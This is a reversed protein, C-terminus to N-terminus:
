CELGGFGLEVIPLPEDAFSVVFREESLPAVGMAFLQIVEEALAGDEKEVEAKMFYDDIGCSECKSPDVISGGIWGASLNIPVTMAM